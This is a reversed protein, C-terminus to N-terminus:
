GLYRVVFPSIMASAISTGCVVIKDDSQLVLGSVKDVNPGVPTRVWGLGEGFNQDLSGGTAGANEGLHFRAVFVDAEDGTGGSGTVTIKNNSANGTIWQSGSTHTLKLLSIRGDNFNADANGADDRGWLMCQSASQDLNEGVYGGILMVNGDGYPALRELQVSERNKGLLVCGNEGYGTDSKGSSDYRTLMCTSRNQNIVNAGAIISEDPNVLLARIYTHEFDPHQVTIYGQEGFDTDLSGNEQLRTIVSYTPDTYQISLLIKQGALKHAYVGDANASKQLKANKLGTLIVRGGNGFQTDVEGNKLFRAVVPHKVANEDTHFGVLLIKGDDLVSVTNGGASSSAAFVGTIVGGIGFDDDLTGEKNLRVIIYQGGANGTFLLKGDAQLAAGNFFSPIGNSFSFLIKGNKDPGFRKDLIGAANSRRNNATM